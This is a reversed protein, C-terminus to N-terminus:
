EVWVEEMYWTLERDSFYIQYITGGIDVSFYHRMSDGVRDKWRYTLHEIKHLTGKWKFWVPKPGKDFVVGVSIPENLRGSSAPLKRDWRSNKNFM